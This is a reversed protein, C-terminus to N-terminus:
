GNEKFPLGVVNPQPRNDKEEHLNSYRKGELVQDVEKPTIPIPPGPQGLVKEKHQDDIIIFSFHIFSSNSLFRAAKDSDEAGYLDIFDEGMKVMDQGLRMELKQKSLVTTVVVTIVVSLLITIIFSLVLKVYISKM